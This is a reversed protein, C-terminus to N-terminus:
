DGLLGSSSKCISLSRSGTIWTAQAQFIRGTALTTSITPFLIFIVILFLILKLAMAAAAATRKVKALAACAFTRTLGVAIVKPATVDFVVVLTM